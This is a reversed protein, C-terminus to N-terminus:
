LRSFLWTLGAGLVGTSLLLTGVRKVCPLLKLNLREIEAGQAGQEASGPPALRFSWSLLWYFLIAVGGVFAIALFLKM